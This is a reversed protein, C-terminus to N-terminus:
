LIILLLKEKFGYEVNDLIYLNDREAILKLWLIMHSTRSDTLNIGKPRFDEM